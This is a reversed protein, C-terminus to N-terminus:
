TNTASESCPPIHRNAAADGPPQSPWGPFLPAAKQTPGADPSLGGAKLYYKCM